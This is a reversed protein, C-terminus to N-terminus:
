NRELNTIHREQCGPILCKYQKVRNSKKGNYEKICVEAEFIKNTLPGLYQWQKPDDPFENEGKFIGPIKTDTTGPIEELKLGCAHVLDQIGPTFKTGIGSFVRRGDFEAHQVITLVPQLNICDKAKTFEPHFGGFQLKYWGEPVPDGQSFSEAKFSMLSM